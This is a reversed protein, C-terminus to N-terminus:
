VVRPWFDYIKQPNYLKLKALEEYFLDNSTKGHHKPRPYSNIWDQVASAQRQTVNAMSEGKPLKRRVLRNTNENTGREHPCNPHCWYATVGLSDFDTMFECGNDCTITKFITKWDKAFYSKLRLMAKYTASATKDKVKIVIEQGTKRETITLVSQNHGKAKGVVSDIEWHGFEQREDIYLPRHEISRRSITTINTRKTEIKHKKKRRRQPLNAYTVGPLYGKAIYRYLTQKSIKIKGKVKYLAVEPSSGNKIEKALAELYRRDNGIKEKPGKSTQLWDAKEQAVQGSYATYFNYNSDMQEVCGRKLERYITSRHVGLEKAIQPPTMGKKRLYEIKMRDNPTLFRSKRCVLM